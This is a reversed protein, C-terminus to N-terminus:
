RAVWAEVLVYAEDGSTNHVVGKIVHGKPDGPEPYLRLPTMTVGGPAPGAPKYMSRVVLMPLSTVPAEGQFYIVLRGNTPVEVLCPGIVAFPGRQTTGSCPVHGTYGEHSHAHAVGSAVLPALTLALALLTKM